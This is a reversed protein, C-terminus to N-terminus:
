VKHVIIEEKDPSDSKNELVENKNGKIRDEFMEPAFHLKRREKAQELTLKKRM